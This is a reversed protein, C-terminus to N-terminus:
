AYKHRKGPVGSCELNVQVLRHTLRHRIDAYEPHDYLNQRQDPDRHRDYLEGWDQNRYLVLKWDPTVLTQQHFKSSGYFDVLAWDRVGAADGQLYPLHSFGQCGQPSTLGAAEVFTPLIDVLNFAHPVLGQEPARQRPVFLIAPIRQCDDYALVGKEWTGHHGLNDGHDSVFCILTNDRQGTRELLELLRGVADDLLNVMGIYARVADAARDGFDYNWHSAILFDDQLPEGQEDLLQPIVGNRSHSQYFPPKSALNDRESTKLSVQSMDVASYWPEPCVYPPHPDQFNLMAFWPTQEREQLSLWQSATDTVFETTGLEAPLDWRGLTMSCGPEKPLLPAHLADIEALDAGKQKLWSRYHGDPPGISTHTNNQRIFDFGLYPGDFSDWFSDEVTGDLERGAIHANCRSIPVFHTKGFLATDYRAAKLLLPLTDRELAPVPGTGIQFAGHRPPYLGTLMSVRAPTCVPSSTYGDRFCVGEKALRDLHPTRYGPTGLLSLADWRQQDTTILLLNPRHSKEPM